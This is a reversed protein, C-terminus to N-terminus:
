AGTVDCGGFDRLHDAIGANVAVVVQTLVDVLADLIVVPETRLCRLVDDLLDAVRVLSQFGVDPSSVEALRPRFPPAPGLGVRDREPPFGCLGVVRPHQRPLAVRTGDRDPRDASAELADPIGPGRVLEFGDRFERNTLGVQDV